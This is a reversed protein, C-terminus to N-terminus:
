GNCTLKVRFSPDSVSYRVHLTNHESKQDVPIILKTPKSTKDSSDYPFYITVTAGGGPPMTKDLFNESLGGANAPEATNDNAYALSIGRGNIDSLGTHDPELEKSTGNHIQVKVGIGTEMVGDNYTAANNVSIVRFRWIGNFLWKNMCGEVAMRQNSGGTVVPKTKAPAPAITLAMAVVTAAFFLKM